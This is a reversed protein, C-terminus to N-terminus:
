REEGKKKKLKNGLRKFFGEKKEKEEEEVDSKRIKKEKVSDSKAFADKIKEILTINPDELVYDQCALCQALSDPLVPFQASSISQFNRDSEIKQMFHGFIPLGTHSGGGLATTRFHVGPNDAGVWAGAVIGPNYGIFWGDANDQTTGTKGAIDSTLGFKWRLSRGTGREVVGKMMEAMIRSTAYDFASDMPETGPATWLVEGKWDEIRLISVPEVPQGLRAFASYAEIMEYVSLDVSGLAISPVEPIDSQIGMLRAQDIVTGIGIENILHASVTNVSNALAGKVTYFGEHEGDSNEPAWDQFDPYVRVENSIYECPEIGSALVASYLIPKFTSGVQRKSTIHDYKFYEFNRGGVWALVHGDVPDLALFGTQLM